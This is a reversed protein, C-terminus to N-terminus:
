IGSRTAEREKEDERKEERKPEAFGDSWSMEGLRNRMNASACSARAGNFFFPATCLVSLIYLYYRGPAAPPNFDQFFSVGAGTFKVLRVQEARRAQVVM